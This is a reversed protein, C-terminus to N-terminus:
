DDDVDGASAGSSSGASSWVATAGSHGIRVAQVTTGTAVVLGAVLLVIPVWTPRRREAATRENWHWVLLAAAVVALGITWPLLTEALAAHTEVLASEAVQEEFAEGSQTSLPVLVVAAAALGLPLYGAWRRFRPWLVALALVLAALPVVVETAHVVLPHLPLGAITDFM